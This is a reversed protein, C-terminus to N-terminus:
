LACCQKRIISSVQFSAVSLFLAKPANNVLQSILLTKYSLGHNATQSVVDMHDQSRKM